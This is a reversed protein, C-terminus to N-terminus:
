RGLAELLGDSVPAEWAAMLAAHEAAVAVGVVVLLGDLDVDLVGALDRGTLREAVRLPLSSTTTV